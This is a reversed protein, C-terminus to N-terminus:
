SIRQPVLIRDKVLEMHLRESVAIGVADAIEGSQGGPQVVELREAHIAEPDL